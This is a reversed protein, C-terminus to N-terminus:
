LHEQVAKINYYYIDVCMDMFVKGKDATKKTHIDSDVVAM